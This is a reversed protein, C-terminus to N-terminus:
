VDKLPELGREKLVVVFQDAKANFEIQADSAFDFHQDAYMSAMEGQFGCSLAAVASDGAAAAQRRLFRETNLLHSDTMQEFTWKKGSKDIWDAM